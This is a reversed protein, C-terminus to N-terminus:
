ESVVLRIMQKLIDLERQLHDTTDLLATLQARDVLLMDEDDDPPREVVRIRESTQEPPQLPMINM